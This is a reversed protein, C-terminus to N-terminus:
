VLVSDYKGSSPTLYIDEGTDGNSKKDVIMKEFYYDGEKM